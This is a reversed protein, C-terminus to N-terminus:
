LWLMYAHVAYVRVISLADPIQAEIEVRSRQNYNIFAALETADMHQAVSTASRAFGKLVQM